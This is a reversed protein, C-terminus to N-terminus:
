VALESRRHPQESLAWRRPLQANGSVYEARRAEPSRKSWRDLDRSLRRETAVVMECAHHLRALAFAAASCALHERPVREHGSRGPLALHRQRRRRHLSSRLWAGSRRKRRPAVGRAVGGLQARFSELARGM